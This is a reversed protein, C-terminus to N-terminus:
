LPVGLLGKGREGIFRAAVMNGEIRLNYTITPPVTTQSTDIESEYSILARPKAATSNYVLEIDKSVGLSRYSPLKHEIGLNGSKMGVSSAGCDKQEENLQNRPQSKREINSPPRERLGPSNCDYWSFHDTYFEVWQGDSTVYSMGHNLWRAEKKSYFGVPIPTSPPFNLYNKIRVRVQKTFTADDPRLNVCYTFLSTPPLPAPLSESSVVDTAVVEIPQSVAGSPIVLEIKGDASQHTGGESTITTVQYDLAMLYLPDVVMDRQSMVEVWRQGYAYGAKETTLLYRGKTPTPFSFRGDWNSLVAGTVDKLTIKVDPLPNRTNVDYVRGNIYGSQPTEPPQEKPQVTFLM